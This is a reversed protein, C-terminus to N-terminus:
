SRGFATAVTVACVASAGAALLAESCASLTAGTTLIDDVLLVRRNELTVGPVAAFAGTLNALREPRRLGVQPLTQRTRIVMSDALSLGRLAALEAALLAAQNFSRQKQRRPHLPVPVIFDFPPLETHFVTAADELAENLLHGLPRALYRRGAYKFRHIAWRLAGEYPGAARAWLFPPRERRCDRCLGPRPLLRGCVTCPAYRYQWAFLQTKCAPCIPGDSAVRGLCLPCRGEHPYLLERLGWCLERWLHM